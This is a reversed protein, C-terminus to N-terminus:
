GYRVNQRISDAGVLLLVYSNESHVPRQHSILLVSCIRQPEGAYSYGSVGIGHETSPRVYARLSFDHCRLQTWSFKMSSEFLDSATGAEIESM